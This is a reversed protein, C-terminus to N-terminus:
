DVKLNVLAQLTSLSVASSCKIRVDSKYIIELQDDSHVPSQVKELEISIFRDKSKKVKSVFRASSNNKKDKYEYSPDYRKRWHQFTTRAIGEQRCFAGQSLGSERWLTIALEASERVDKKKDGM